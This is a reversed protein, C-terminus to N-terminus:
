NDQPDDFFVYMNALTACCIILEFFRKKANTSNIEAKIEGKEITFRYHNAVDTICQKVDRATLEYTTNMFRLTNKNDTLFFKDGDKKVFVRLPIGKKLEVNTKIEVFSSDIRIIENKSQILNIIEEM